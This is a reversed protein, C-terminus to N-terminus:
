STVATGCGFILIIVQDRHLSVNLVAVRVPALEIHAKPSVQNGVVGSSISPSGDVLPEFVM